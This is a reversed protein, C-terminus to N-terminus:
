FDPGTDQVLIISKGLTGAGGNNVCTVTGGTGSVGTAVSYTHTAGAGPYREVFTTIPVDTATAPIPANKRQIQVGDEFITCQGDTAGSARLNVTVHITLERNDGVTPAVSLVTETTTSGSSNASLEDRGITGGPMANIDAASIVDGANFTGATAVRTTAM